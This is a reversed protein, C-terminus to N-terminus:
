ESSQATIRLEAAALLDKIEDTPALDLPTQLADNKETPNAGHELLCRVNEVLGKKAAYHLPKFGNKGSLNANGGYKFMLELMPLHDQTVASFM